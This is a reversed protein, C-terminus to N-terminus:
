YPFGGGQQLAQGTSKTLCHWTISGVEIEEAMGRDPDLPDFLSDFAPWVDVHPIYWTGSNLGVVLDRNGDGDLDAFTIDRATSTTYHKPWLDYWADYLWLGSPMSAVIWGGNIGSMANVKSSTVKVWPASIVQEALTERSSKPDPWPGFINMSWLGSNYSAFLTEPFGDKTTDAWTLAHAPTPSISYWNDYYTDYLWTGSPISVALWGYHNGALATATSKTLQQWSGDSAIYWTGSHLGAFMNMMGDGGMDCYSITRAVSTTLRDWEATRAHYYWTGSPIATVLNMKEGYIRFPFDQQTATGGDVAANYTGSDYTYQMANGTTTQGLITVPPAWPGSGLTGTASWELWYRGRPLQIGGFDASLLMIPRTSDSLAYDAVRYIGSFYANVLRNTTLDGYIVEAGPTGPFGNWLRWYLGTFTPTTSSGTQYGYFSVDKVRWGAHGTVYFDDCVRNPLYHQFGFAFTNMGLSTQLASAHYGNYGGFPHTILSGNTYLEIASPSYDPEQDFEQNVEQNEKDSTETMSGNVADVRVDDRVLYDDPRESIDSAAVSIGTFYILVLFLLCLIFWKKSKQVKFGEM